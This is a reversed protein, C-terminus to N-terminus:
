QDRQDPFGQVKRKTIQVNAKQKLLEIYAAMEQQAVISEIQEHETQRRATDPTATQEVKNIRYLGFGQEPLEVGVFAPLKRTDAKMVAAVALPNLGQDKIRSVKKPSSFGADNSNAKLAALKANGEKIAIKVAEIQKVRESISAKVEEFPRKTAPKYEVIHAGVLTNPAVEIAETNRKNKISDDSFVAKLFKANNLLANATQSQSPQRTLNSAIEIKLKLKDAVPQLSDSQEYITNTFIEALEAYKKAGLQKKIEATIESKVEDLPKVSTPKIGTLMIIHYGFESQVLDSIEGQKLKFAADEFPKVMMGKSFFGLDGGLEASGSDQSNQKALKAFDAPNKRLQTLLSEAKSKAALKDAESADKKVSILIHSARRQEEVSYRKLNQEYYSKIDAETLSIQSEVADKNLVVYEVKAQEPIEFQASHQEYYAKLMDDTLKVQSIYGGGNFMMEQVEREQDNIDSLRSTVTKPTFASLQIAASTQQMALDQRLRAEFIAPSMGQAALLTKYRNADFKGDQGILGPIALISQQLSRDSVSLRHHTVEAALARQAILSDLVEQKAEPTDFIKPDFQDGLRQRLRDTQERLAFDWEQQTISQGAVKAVANDKDRFRSYSQIGVFAFSPIIFLLLIFQMLRKHTRIFELM